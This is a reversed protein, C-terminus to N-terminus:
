CLSIIQLIYLENTFHTVSVTQATVPLIGDEIDKTAQHIQNQLDNVTPFFYLNHKEPINGLQGALEKEM